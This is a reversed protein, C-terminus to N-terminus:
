IKKVALSSLAIIKLVKKFRGEPKREGLEWRSLTGPDVGLERAFERQTLGRSKRHAVLREGITSGTPLPNFGFFNVTKGM